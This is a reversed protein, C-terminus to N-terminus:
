TTLQSSVPSIPTSRGELRTCKLSKLNDYPVLVTRADWNAGIDSGSFYSVGTGTGLIAGFAFFCGVGTSCLAGGTVITAFVGAITTDVAMSWIDLKGHESGKLATPYANKAMTFVVALPKELNLTDLKKLDSNEYKEILTSSQVRSGTLFDLYIQDSTVSPKEKALFETLGKVEKKNTFELSSCIACFNGDKTDFIEGKGRGYTDWCSAMSDAITRKVVTDDNSDITKYETFCSDLEAPNGFQDVINTGKVTFLHKERIIQQVNEKCIQKKVLSSNEKQVGGLVIFLIVVVISDLIFGMIMKKDLDPM